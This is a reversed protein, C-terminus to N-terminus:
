CFYFFFEVLSSSLSIVKIKKSFNRENRKKMYRHIKRKREEASLKGVKFTPDELSSIESALTTSPSGHFLHQQSEGSLAQLDGSSFSFIRAMSDHMFLGGNDGQFDLEQTSLDSGLFLGNGGAFFGSNDFSFPGSMTSAPPLSSYPGTMPEIPSSCVPSSSTRLHIFSPVCRMLLEDRFGAPILPGASPMPLEPPYHQHATYMSGDVTDALSIQNNLQCPPEPDNNNSNNNNYQQDNNNDSFPILSPSLTFDISASIDNDIQDDLFASLSSATNTTTTAAPNVDNDLITNYSNIDVASLDPTPYSSHEEYCCNSSSAVESNQLTEPFLESDYNFDFM